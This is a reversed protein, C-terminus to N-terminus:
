ITQPSRRKIERAMQNAEKFNAPQKFASKKIDGLEEGAMGARPTSVKTVGLSKRIDELQINMSKKVEEMGKEIGKEVAKEVFKVEDTEAGQAPPDEMIEETPTKPLTVPTGEAGAKEVDDKKVQSKDVDKDKDEDKHEEKKVESKDVDKEKDDDEHADKLVGTEAVPEPAAMRSEVMEILKAMAEKIQAVEQALGELSLTQEEGIKKNDEMKMIGHAKNNIFSKDIQMSKGLNYLTKNQTNLMCKLSISMKNIDKLTNHIEQVKEIKAIKDDSKGIKSKVELVCREFKEKDERGVQATCIAWANDQKILEEFGAKVIEEKVIDNKIDDSKAIYNIEELVSPENSPGDVFSFEFGDIGRLLVEPDMGKEFIVDKFKNTGGFSFGKYEQKKIKDWVIDDYLYDDFVSVMLKVGEEDTKPNIGFEYNLCKAVVKNTHKDIIFGGRRMYIPMFKKFEDMPLRQGQKDRIDVSGWGRVLRDKDNYIELPNFQKPKELEQEPM